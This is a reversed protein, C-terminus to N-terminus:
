TRARVILFADHMWVPAASEFGAASLGDLTEHVTLPADDNAEKRFTWEILRKPCGHERAFAMRMRVTHEQLTIDDHRIFDGWVFVGPSSLCRRIAALVSPKQDYPVNHLALNSCVVDFPDDAAFGALNAHAVSAREGYPELARTAKAVMAESPDLATVHADRAGDLIAATVSGPGAGVDLVRAPRAAVVLEVLSTLMDDYRPVLQRIVIPYDPALEAYYESAASARADTM